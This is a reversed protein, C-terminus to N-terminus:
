KPVPKISFDDQPKSTTNRNIRRQLISYYLADRKENIENKQTKSINQPIKLYLNIFAKKEAISIESTNLFLEDISKTEAAGKIKMSSILVRKEHRQERYDIFLMIGVILATGAILTGYIRGAKM